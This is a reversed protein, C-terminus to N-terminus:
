EAQAASSADPVDPDEKEAVSSKKDVIACVPTEAPGMGPNKGEKEQLDQGETGHAKQPHRIPNNPRRSGYRPPPRQQPGGAKRRSEKNEAELGESIVASTGAGQPMGRGRPRSLLYSPGLGRRPTVEPKSAPVSWALHSAWPGHPHPLLSPSLALVQPRRFPPFRWFSQDQPRGPLYRRPAQAVTFCASFGVCSDEGEDLHDKADRSRGPPPERHNIYCGPRFRPRNAAYRSGEVPAGAPGTVNAAETGREGQVVDFEVTEGDGVSRQYKHPNNRTIATQHVFVDEQTDHRSIFGYGNKVNFWKVSGRVRKAILKKPAKGKTAGAVAAKTIPEGSLTGTVLAGPPDGSGLSILQKQAAQPSISAAMETSTGEGAENM